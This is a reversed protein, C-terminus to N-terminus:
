IADTGEQSNGTNKKKRAKKDYLPDYRDCANELKKFDCSIKLLFKNKKNTV